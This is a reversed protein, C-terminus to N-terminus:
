ATAKKGTNTGLFKESAQPITIKPEIQATIEISQFMKKIQVTFFDESYM